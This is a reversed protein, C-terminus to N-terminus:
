GDRTEMPQRRDEPTRLKMKIIPDIELGRDCATQALTDLSDSIDALAKGLDPQTALKSLGTLKGSNYAITAYESLTM